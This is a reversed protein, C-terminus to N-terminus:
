SQFVKVRRLGLHKQFTPKGPFLLRFEMRGILAVVVTHTNDCDSNEIDEM